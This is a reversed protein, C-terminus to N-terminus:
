QRPVGLERFYDEIHERLEEASAANVWAHVRDVPVYSFSVDEFRAAVDTNPFHKKEDIQEDDETEDGEARIRAIVLAKDVSTAQSTWYVSVRM